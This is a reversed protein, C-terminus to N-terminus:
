TTRPSSGGRNGTSRGDLRRRSRVSITPSVSSLDVTSRSRPRSPRSSHRLTPSMSWCTSCSSRALLLITPQGGGKSSSPAPRRKSGCGGAQGAAAIEVSPETGFADWGRDGLFKVLDGTGCGVDLVRRPAGEEAGRDIADLVDNHITAALWARERAADPGGAILRALDPARGGADLEDRYRSEYFGDLESSSPLPDLRRYGWREDVVVSARQTRM